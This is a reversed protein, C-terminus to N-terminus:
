GAKLGKLIKEAALVQGEFLRISVRIQSMRYRLLSAADPHGRLKAAPINLDFIAADLQCGSQVLTLGEYEPRDLDYDGLTIDATAQNCNAHIATQLDSPIIGRALARFEAPLNWVESRPIMERHYRTLELRMPLDDLLRLGGTNQMDLYTSLEASFGWEEAAIFAAVLLTLDDVTSVGDLDRLVLLGNDRIHKYYLTRSGLARVDSELDQILLARYVLGRELDESDKLWTDVFLASLVGLIIVVFEISLWRFRQSFQM